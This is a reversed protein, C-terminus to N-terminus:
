SADYVRAEEDLHSVGARFLPVPRLYGRGYLVTIEGGVEIPRRTKLMVRWRSMVRVMSFEASPDESHHVKRVWNGRRGPYIETVPFNDLDPRSVVLTWEGPHSGIPALEGLLEGLVQGSPLSGIARVGEGGPGGVVVPPPDPIMKKLCCCTKRTCTDCNKDGPFVALPDSPWVHGRWGPPQVWGPFQHVYYHNKKVLTNHVQLVTEFREFSIDNISELNEWMFEPPDRVDRVACQFVKGMRVLLRMARNELLQRFQVVKDRFLALGILNSSLPLLCLYGETSHCLKRWCKGERIYEQLKPLDKPKWQLSDLLEQTTAMSNFGCQEVTPGCGLSLEALLVKVFRHLFVHIPTSNPMEEVGNILDFVSRNSLTWLVCRWGRVLSDLREFAAMPSLDTVLSGASMARNSATNQLRAALKMFVSTAAPACEPSAQQEVPLPQQAIHQEVPLPQQVIHSQNFPTPQTPLQGGSPAQQDVHVQLSPPLQQVISGDHLTQSPTAPHSATRQKKRARNMTRTEAPRKRAKNASPPDTPMLVPTGVAQETQTGGQYSPVSAHRETSETSSLAEVSSPTSVDSPQPEVPAFSEPTYISAAVAPLVPVNYTSNQPRSFPNLTGVPRPPVPGDTLLPLSWRPASLPGRHTDVQESPLGFDQGSTRQAGEMSPLVAEASNSLSDAHNPFGEVEAAPADVATVQNEHQAERYASNGSLSMETTPIPDQSPSKTIIRQRPPSTIQAAPPPALVSLSNPPLDVVPQMVQTRMPQFGGRLMIDSQLGGSTPQEHEEAYTPRPLASTVPQEPQVPQPLTEETVEPQAPSATFLVPTEPLPQSTSAVSPQIDEMEVDEMEYSLSPGATLERTPEPAPTPMPPSTPTESPPSALMQAPEPVLAEAVTAPPEEVQSAIPVPSSAISHDETQMEPAPPQLSSLVPSRVPSVVPDPLLVPATEIESPPIPAAAAAPPLLAPAEEISDGPAPIAPPAMIRKPSTVPAPTPHARTKRSYTVPKNPPARAKKPSTATSSKTSSTKAPFYGPPLVPLPVPTEVVPRSPTHGALAFSPIVPLPVPTEVRCLSMRKVSRPEAQQHSVLSGSDTELPKSQSPEQLQKLIAALEEETYLRFDEATMAFKDPCADDCFSYNVPENPSSLYEVNIAIAYNPGLNLVQHYTGPETVIAQGPVCYDLTYEVGWEDLRAPPIHLSLHRVAQSCDRMGPYLARLAEEMRATSSPKVFCWFKNEGSRLLNESRVHADERHMTTITKGTLNFYVYQTNIGELKGRGRRRLKEGPALEVDDFLPNGIIYPRTGKPPNAASSNWLDRQEELSWSEKETRRFPLRPTTFRMRKGTDVKILGRSDKKYIFSTAHDKSPRSMKGVKLPPLNGVQLKFYGRNKVEPHSSCQEFFEENLVNVDGYTCSFLPAAEKRISHAPQESIHQPFPQSSLQPPLQTPSSTSPQEEQLERLEQLPRCKQEGGQTPEPESLLPQAQETSIAAPPAAEKPPEIPVVRVPDTSSAPTPGPEPPPSVHPQIHPSSPSQSEDQSRNTPSAYSQPTAPGNSPITPSLTSSLKRVGDLESSVHDLRSLLHQLLDRGAKTGPPKVKRVPTAGSDLYNRLADGIGRVETDISEVKGQLDM